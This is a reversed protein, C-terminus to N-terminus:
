FRSAQQPVQSSNHLSLVYYCSSGGYCVLDLEFANRITEVAESNLSTRIDQLQERSYRWHRFQTSGEYIPQKASSQYGDLPNQQVAMAALLLTTDRSSRVHESGLRHCSGSILENNVSQGRVQIWRCDFWPFVGTIVKSSPKAPSLLSM